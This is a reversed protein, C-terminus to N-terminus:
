ESGISTGTPVKASMCMQVMRWICFDELNQKAILRKSDINVEDNSEGEHDVGDDKEGEDDGEGEHVGEDGEDDGNQDANCFLLAGSATPHNHGADADNDDRVM